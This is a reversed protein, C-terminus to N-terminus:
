KWNDRIRRTLNVTMLMNIRVKGGASHVAETIGILTVTGCLEDKVVSFVSFYQM